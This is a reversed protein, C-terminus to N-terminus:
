STQRSLWTTGTITITITDARPPSTLLNDVITFHGLGDVPNNQNIEISSATNPHTVGLFTFTRPM